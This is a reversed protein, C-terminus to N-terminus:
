LEAMWLYFYLDPIIRLDVSRLVKGKRSTNSAAAEQLAASNCGGVGTGVLVCTSAGAGVTVRGSGIRSDAVGLSSAGVVADCGGGGSGVMAEVGVGTRGRGSSCKM